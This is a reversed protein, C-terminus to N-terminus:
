PNRVSEPDFRLKPLKEAKEHLMLNQKMSTDAVGMIGISCPWAFLLPYPAASTM